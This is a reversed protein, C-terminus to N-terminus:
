QECFTDDKTMIFEMLTLHFENICPLPLLYLQGQAKKLQAGRWSSPNHLPLIDGSM